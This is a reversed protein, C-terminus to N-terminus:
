WRPVYKAPACWRTPSRFASPLFRIWLSAGACPHFRGANLPDPEARVLFSSVPENPFSHHPTALSGLWDIDVTSPEVEDRREVPRDRRETRAGDAASSAPRFGSTECLGIGTRANPMV